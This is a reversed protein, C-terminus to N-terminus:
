TGGLNNMLVLSTGMALGVTSGTRMESLQGAYTSHTIVEGQPRKKVQLDGIASEEKELRLTLHGM